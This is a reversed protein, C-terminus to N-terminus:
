ESTSATYVGIYITQTVTMSDPIECHYIGEVGGSRRNLRVRMQGRTRHFDWQNGSVPVRTGNRFFWNGLASGNPPRCCTALNTMCLLSDNGEGIDELAM